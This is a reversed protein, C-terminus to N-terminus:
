RPACSERKMNLITSEIKEKNSRISDPTNMELFLSAKKLGEENKKSFDNKSLYRLLGKIGISFYRYNDALKTQDFHCILDKPQEINDLNILEKLVAIVLQASLLSHHQEAKTILEPHTQKTDISLLLSDMALLIDDAKKPTLSPAQQLLPINDYFAILFRLTAQVDQADEIKQDRKEIAKLMANKALLRMEDTPHTRLQEAEQQCPNEQNDSYNDPSSYLAIFFYVPEIAILDTITIQINLFCNNSDSASQYPYFHTELIKIQVPIDQLPLLSAKELSLYEEGDANLPDNDIVIETFQERKRSFENLRSWDAIAYDFMKTKLIPLLSYIDVGALGAIAQAKYYYLEGSEPSAEIMLEIKQLALSYESRNLLNFIEAQQPDPLHSDKNYKSCGQSFLAIFLFLLLSHFPVSRM